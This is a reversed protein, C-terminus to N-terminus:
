AKQTESPSPTLLNSLRATSERQVLEPEFVLEHAEENPNNMRTLVRDFAAQAIEQMPQRVSSLAPSLYSDLFLDDIGMVSVDEPVRKQCQRLGSLLGVAVMDNMAIYGTANSQAAQLEIAANRGLAAMEMEIQGNPVDSMHVQLRAGAAACAKRVGDLRAERSVARLPATVYVLDRHGLDLLHEAALEGSRHNDVSVYDMNWPAAQATRDFSVVALGRQILPALHEQAQLASGIVMGRVGQAMLAQAYALERDAERQTNCLMVGYGRENAVAEIQRALTGFFPNAISPVLLGIMALNGTKLNRASQNPRFELETIANRVRELTAARMRSERGNLVNSVTSISVQAHRAVDEITPATKKMLNALEDGM